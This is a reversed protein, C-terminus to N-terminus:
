GGACTARVLPHPITYFLDYIDYRQETRIELIDRFGQTTILGVLAGKHEILTNAVLTTAHVVYHLEAHTLGVKDLFNKVGALAGRAPNDPTTLVKFVALQGGESDLLALDTFTGGIDFGLRYSM